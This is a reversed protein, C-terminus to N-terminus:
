KRSFNVRLETIAKSKCSASLKSPSVPGYTCYAATRALLMKRLSSSFAFLQGVKGRLQRAVSEGPLKGAFVEPLHQQGRRFRIRDHLAGHGRALRRMHGSVSELERLQETVEVMQIGDNVFLVALLLDEQQPHCVKKLRWNSRM